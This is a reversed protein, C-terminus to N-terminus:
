KVYFDPWWQIEDTNNALLGICRNGKKRDCESSQGGSEVLVEAKELAVIQHERWEKLYVVKDLHEM